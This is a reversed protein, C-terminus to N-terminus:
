LAFARREAGTRVLASIRKALYPSFYGRYALQLEPLMWDHGTVKRRCTPAGCACEFENVDSGATMARDYSLHEGPAIDRMAVVLVAAAMGCNPACSHGITEGPPAAPDSVMFVDDDIQVAHAADAGDRDLDARSVCRGGFAAVTEGAAIPEVAYTGWGGADARVRAKPSLFNAGV